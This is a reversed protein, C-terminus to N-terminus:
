NTPKRPNKSGLILNQPQQMYPDYKKRAPKMSEGTKNKAETFFKAMNAYANPHTSSDIDDSM